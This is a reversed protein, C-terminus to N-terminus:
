VEKFEEHIKESEREIENMETYLAPLQGLLWVCVGLIGEVSDLMGEADDLLDDIKGVNVLLDNEYGSCKQEFQYTQVGAIGGGLLLLSGVNAFIKKKNKNFDM